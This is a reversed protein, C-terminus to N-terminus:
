ITDCKERANEFLKDKKFRKFAAKYMLNDQPINNKLLWDLISLKEEETIIRGSGEIYNGFKDREPNIITRTKLEQEIILPKYEKNNRLFDRIIKAEEISLSSENIAPRIQNFELKTYLYLDIMDFERYSGDELKIGEKILKAIDKLIYDMTLVQVM